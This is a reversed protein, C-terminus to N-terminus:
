PQVFDILFIIAIKASVKVTAPMYLFNSQFPLFVSKMCSKPLSLFIQPSNEEM